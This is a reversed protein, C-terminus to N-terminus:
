NAPTSPPQGGQTADAGVPLGNNLRLFFGNDDIRAGLKDWIRGLGEWVGAAQQQVSQWVEVGGRQAPAHRRPAAQATLPLLSLLGALAFTTAARRYPRQIM